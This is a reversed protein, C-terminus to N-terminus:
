MKSIIIHVLFTLYIIKIVMNRYEIPTHNKLVTKHNHYHM